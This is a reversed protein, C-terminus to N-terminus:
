SEFGRDWALRLGGAAPVGGGGEMTFDSLLERTSWPSDGM